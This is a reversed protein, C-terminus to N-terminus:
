RVRIALFHPESGVDRYVENRRPHRMAEFESLRQRRGTRWDSFSGQHGERAAMGSKTCVRTAWMPRDDASGDRVVVATLVCGETGNPRITSLRLDRQQRDRHGRARSRAGAPRRTRSTRSGNLASRRAKGGAAQGGIGDIVIFVGRAEDVHYRDRESGAPRRM